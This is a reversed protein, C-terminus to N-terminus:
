HLGLEVQGGLEFVVSDKQTAAMALGLGSGSPLTLGTSLACRWASEDTSFGPGARVPSHESLYMRTGDGSIDFRAATLSTWFWSRRIRLNGAAMRGRGSSQEPYADSITLLAKVDSGKYEAECRSVRYRRHELRFTQGITFGLAFRGLEQGLRVELRAPLSDLAFDRYTNGRIRVGFGCARYGVRARAYLREQRNTLSRSRGLPAFYRASYGVLGLGVAFSQWDGAVELAGAAGGGTSVAGEIGVRYDRARLDASVGGAALASGYFSDISDEPAFERGYRVYAGTAAVVAHKWVRAIGTGLSLEAVASRGALSASDDHTGGYELRDVTGDDNLRADRGVYSGLVSAEWTPRVMEVGAGRFARNELASRVARLNGPGKVGADRWAGSRRHPGSFVLGLGRGFTYHGVTFGFGHKQYSLATGVWDSLCSEGRDKEIIGTAKWPVRNVTVRGIGALRDGTTPITDTWTRLLVSGTWDPRGGQEDEDDEHRVVRVVRRLMDYQKRSIGNVELLQSLSDFGGLSERMELIRAALVPSLWPISLLEDMGARNLDIPHSHLFLVEQELAVEDENALAEPPLERSDPLLFCTLVWVLAM